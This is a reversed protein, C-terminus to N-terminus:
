VSNDLFQGASTVRKQRSGQSALRALMRLSISGSWAHFLVYEVYQHIKEFRVDVGLFVGFGVVVFQADLQRFGAKAVRLDITREVPEVAQGFM